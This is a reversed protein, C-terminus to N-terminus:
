EPQLLFLHCFACHRRFRSASRLVAQYRGPELFDQPPQISQLPLHLFKGLQHAIMRLIGISDHADHCLIAFEQAALHDTLVLMAQADAFSRVRFGSGSWYGDENAV